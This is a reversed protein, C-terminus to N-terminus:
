LGRVHEKVSESHFYGPNRCGCRRCYPTDFIETVRYGPHKLEDVKRRKWNHGIVRCLFSPSCTASPAVAQSDTTQATEAAAPDTKQKMIKLATEPPAM